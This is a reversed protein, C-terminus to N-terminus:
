LNNYTWQSIAEVCLNRHISIISPFKKILWIDFMENDKNLLLYQGLLHYAKEYGISNFENEYCELGPVETILKHGIPQREFRFYIENNM